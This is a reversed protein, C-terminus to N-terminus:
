AVRDGTRDNTTAAPRGEDAAEIADFVNDYVDSTSFSVDPDRKLWYDGDEAVVIEGDEWGVVGHEGVFHETEVTVSEADVDVGVVPENKLAERALRAAERRQGDAYLTRIRSQVDM